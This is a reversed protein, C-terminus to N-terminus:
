SFGTVSRETIILFGAVGKLSSGAAESTVKGPTNAQDGTVVAATVVAMPASGPAQFTHRLRRRM